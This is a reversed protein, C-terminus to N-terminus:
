DADLSIRELDRETSAEREVVPRGTRALARQLAEDTVGARAAATELDLTGDRYLALATRLAHQTM